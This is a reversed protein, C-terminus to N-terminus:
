LTEQKWSQTTINASKGFSDKETTQTKTPLSEATSWGNWFLSRPATKCSQEYLAKIFVTGTSSLKGGARGVWLQEATWEHLSLLIYLSCTTLPLLQLKSKWFNKNTTYKTPNHPKKKKKKTKNQKEQWCQDFWLSFWCWILSELRLSSRWSLDLNSPCQSTM